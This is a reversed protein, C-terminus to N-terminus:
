DRRWDARPTRILARVWSFHRALVFLPMWTLWVALGQHWYVRKLAEKLGRYNADFVQNADKLAWLAQRCFERLFRRRVRRLLSHKGLESLLRELKEWYLMRSKVMRESQSASEAHMRWRLTPRPVYQIEGRNLLRVFLDDDEYGSLREDFGGIELFLERRVTMVGPVVFVDGTVADELCCIPHTGGCGHLQHIRQWLPLGDLGMTDLDTYVLAVNPSLKKVVASFRNPHYADDQDLFAVWEGLAHRVGLNRASSQGGNGKKLVRAPVLLERCLAAALDFSSDSSGDDVVILEVDPYEQKGVSEIAERLLHPRDAIQYVPLIVSILPLGPSPQWEQPPRGDDVVPSGKRGRLKRWLARPLATYRWVRSGKLWALEAETKALRRRWLDLEQERRDLEADMRALEEAARFDWGPVTQTQWKRHVAQWAPGREVREAAAGVGSQGQARYFATVRPVFLFDSKAALQLLFDWDEYLDLSEDFTCARALERSFLAAHLPIFNGGLLRARSFPRAFTIEGGARGVTRAASYAVAFSPNTELAAVLM